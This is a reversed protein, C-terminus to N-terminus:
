YEYGIKVSNVIHAKSISILVTIQVSLLKILVACKVRRQFKFSAFLRRNTQEQLKKFINKKIITFNKLGKMHLVTVERGM